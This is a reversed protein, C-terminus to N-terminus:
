GELLRLLRRREDPEAVRRALAGLQDWRARLEFTDDTRTVERYGHLVDVTREPPLNRFDIAADGWGADGWDILAVEGDCPLLNSDKIDDHVFRLPGDREFDQVAPELIRLAAHLRRRIDDDLAPLADM